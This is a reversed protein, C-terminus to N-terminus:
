FFLVFSLTAFFVESLLCLLVRAININEVMHAYIGELTCSCRHCLKYIHLVIHINLHRTINANFFITEATMSYSADYGDLKQKWIIVQKLYNCNTQTKRTWVCAYFIDNLSLILILHYFYKLIFEVYKNSKSVAIKRHGLKIHFLLQRFIVILRYLHVICNKGSNGFTRLEDKPILCIKTAHLNNFNM